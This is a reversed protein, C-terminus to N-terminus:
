ASEGRCAPAVPGFKASFVEGMDAGAVGESMFLEGSKGSIPIIV